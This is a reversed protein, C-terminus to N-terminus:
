NPTIFSQFFVFTGFAYDSLTTVHDGGNVTVLQVNEAGQLLMAQYASASNFYPVYIDDTGHYLQLPSNPKWDYCNNSAFVSNLQADNGNLYNEIFYPNLLLQPNQEIPAFVGNSAIITAWPENFYFTYPRNLEQYIKNYVDLVWVFSNIHFLDENSGIIWNAFETKNYAGAGVTVATINFENAHNEQLMKFMSMTAFGGESYGTLFLKDNLLAEKKTVKFYEYSARLMDRCATALSERHEYPHEIHKSSGYGLYDPVSLIYGTSSFITAITAYESQFNSPASSEDTITGHQFSIMPMSASNDPIILVGSALTPQLDYSVTLYTIRIAKVGFRIFMSAQTPLFGGQSLTSIISEKSINAIESYEILYQPEFKPENEKDCSTLWAFAIILVFININFWKNIRTM